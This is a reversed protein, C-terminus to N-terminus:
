RTNLIEEYVKIYEKVMKEQSFREVVTKRCEKRSIKKVDKIQECMEDISESIFGNVGNQILEPMSGKNFALVPTGCAMSEVVSLGFPENFNIPHLLAYANGLIEDRKEPGVSGIYEIDDGLHPKVFEEYYKEDQIIGAIILKMGAKKAIEIAEKAGKDHHIRGFFLLYKGEEEKLTFNNIDIGHYVTRIYDLESSRDADSISVYYTKKNYKKYVPLIKPSSFGHITTVMPTKILGSYTLPLFDFNNHIIDFEDAQEMIESIHLCEWVKPDISKDEEYPRECIGRLKAKTVSDKTAYLTVDINEKVLGETLLSVVREWPGYHRPPTRWAIPSLIAVKM